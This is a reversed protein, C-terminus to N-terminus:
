SGQVITDDSTLPGQAVQSVIEFDVHVLNLPISTIVISVLSVIYGKVNMDVGISDESDILVILTGENDSSSVVVLVILHQESSLVYSTVNLIELSIHLVITSIPNDSSFPLEGTTSSTLELKVSWAWRVLLELLHLLL